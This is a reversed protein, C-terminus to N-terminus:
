RTTAQPHLWMAILNTVGAMITNILEENDGGNDERLLRLQGIVGAISTAHMQCIQDHLEDAQEEIADAERYLKQCGSEELVAEIKAKGARYQELAGASWERVYIVSEETTYSAALDPFAVTVVGHQVDEPLSSKIMDGAARTRGALAYLRERETLLAIVLDGAAGSESHRDKFTQDDFM